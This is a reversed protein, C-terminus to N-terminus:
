RNGEAGDAGSRGRPRTPRRGWGRGVDRVRGEDRVCHPPGSCAVVSIYEAVGMYVFACAFFSHSDFVCWM